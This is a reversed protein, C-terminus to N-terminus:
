RRVGALVLGGAVLLAGAVCDLVRLRNVDLKQRARAIAFSYMLDVITLTVVFLVGLIALQLGPAHDPTIFQPLFAGLFLLVKPNSLAVALGQIYHSRGSRPPVEESENRRRYFQWIQWSGLFVLYLAGIWRILDFWQAMLMVISTMGVAAIAVLMSLGSATGALTLVGARFGGRLTNAIILAMNPGPTVALVFCTAIFALLVGTSM